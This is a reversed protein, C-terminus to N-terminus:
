GGYWDYFKEFFNKARVYATKVAPIAAAAAGKTIKYGKSLLSDGSYRLIQSFSSLFCAGSIRTALSLTNPVDENLMDLYVLWESVIFASIAIGTTIMSVANIRAMFMNINGEDPVTITTLNPTKIVGVFACSATMPFFIVSGSVIAMTAVTKSEFDSTKEQVRKYARKIRGGLTKPFRGLYFDRPTRPISAHPKLPFRDMFDPSFFSEEQLKAFYPAQSQMIEHWRRCVRNLTDISQPNKPDMLFPFIKMGLLDDSTRRFADRNHLVVSM